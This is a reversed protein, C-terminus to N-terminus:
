PFRHVVLFELSSWWHDVQVVNFIVPTSQLASRYLGMRLSSFLKIDYNFAVNCIFRGYINQCVLAGWFQLVCDNKCYWPIFEPNIKKTNWCFGITGQEFVALSFRNIPLWDQWMLRINKQYDAKNYQGFIQLTSEYLSMSIQYYAIPLITLYVNTDPSQKPTSSWMFLVKCYQRRAFRNTIL